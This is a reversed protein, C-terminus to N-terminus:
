QLIRDAIEDPTLGDVSVVLDAVERYLPWREEHMRQLTGAPDHDLWPRHHRDLTRSGARRPRGRAVGRLRACGRSAPPQRPDLVVGGAAAIVQPATEALADFLAAAEHRRLADVGQDALVQKVTSGTLAEIRFDSDVLERGLQASLVRGVTTKGSGMLGILVLHRGDVTGGGVDTDSVTGRRDGSM